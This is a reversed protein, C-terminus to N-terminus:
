VPPLLPAHVDLLEYLLNRAEDIRINVVPDILPAKLTKEYGAECAAEVNLKQITTLTYVLSELGSAL